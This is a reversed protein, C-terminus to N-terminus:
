TEERILQQQDRQQQARWRWARWCASSRGSASRRAWALQPQRHSWRRPRPAKGRGRGRPSVAISCCRSGSGLAARLAQLRRGACNSMAISMAAAVPPTM